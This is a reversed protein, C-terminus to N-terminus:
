GGRGNTNRRAGVADRDDKPRVPRPIPTGPPQNRDSRGGGPPFPNPAPKPFAEAYDTPGSWQKTDHLAQLLKSMIKNIVIDHALHYLGMEAFAGVGPIVDDLVRPLLEGLRNNLLSQLDKVRDKDVENWAPLPIEDQLDKMLPIIPRESSGAPCYGLEVARQTSITAYGEVILPNDVPLTFHEQLFRQCNRRGLQFDHERFDKSVFGGFASLASCASAPFEADNSGTKTRVPAILYRNHIDERVALILDQAKFRGQSVMAGILAGVYKTLKLKENGDDLSKDYANYEQAAPPLDPFPDIMVISSRAKDPQTPGAGGHDLAIRAIDIPENNIVGGDVTVFRYPTSSNVPWAPPITVDGVADSWLRAAYNDRKLKILRPALGVPFAGSAIAANAFDTWGV